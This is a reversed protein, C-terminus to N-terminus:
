SSKLLPKRPNGVIYFSMKRYQGIRVLNLGNRRFNRIIKKSQATKMLFVQNSEQEELEEIINGDYGNNSNGSSINEVEANLYFDLTYRPKMDVCVVERIRFPSAENLARALGLKNQELPLYSALAKLTLLLVIWILLMGQRRRTLSITFHKGTLLSLPIFLPLVYLALRSRSLTFVLMAPILWSVLFFDVPNKERESRDAMRKLFHFGVSFKRFLIGTWPLFGFLFTPVYVAFAGYWGANRHFQDSAVRAILEDAIFYKLRDPFKLIIIFYWSLGVLLFLAVGGPIFFRWFDRSGKTLGIFCLFGLVPLLGPPGKTMFALGLAIWMWRIYWINPKERFRFYAKTFFLAAAAEWLTLITDTTVINAACFPLISTAYILAPLWPTNFGLNGAIGAVCLVTLIFALAYPLRVAWENKGFLKMASSILWYTIPPKTLHPTEHDRYPVIWNYNDQMQLSVGTYRGESPEWLKRSGQFSFALVASLILVALIPRKKLFDSTIYM